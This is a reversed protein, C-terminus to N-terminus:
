GSIGSGSSPPMPVPPPFPLSCPMPHAGSFNGPKMQGLFRVLLGDVVLAHFALGLITVLAYKVLTVLIGLGFQWTISAMLALVGLPAFKMV